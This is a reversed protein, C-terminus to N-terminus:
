VHARGIEGSVDVGIRVAGDRAAWDTKGDVTYSKSVHSFSLTGPKAM